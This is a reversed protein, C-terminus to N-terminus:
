LKLEHQTLMSNIVIFGKIIADGTWAGLREGSVANSTFIIYCKRKINWQIQFLYGKRVWKEMQEIAALEEM